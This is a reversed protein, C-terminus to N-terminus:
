RHLWVLTRVRARFVTVQIHLHPVEQFAAEGISCWLSLGENPFAASVARTVRAVTVMLAAGTVDDLERVDNFHRCPMVLTHGPHFQRLDVFAMTLADQYVISAPAAGTVIDCFVCPATLRDSHLVM